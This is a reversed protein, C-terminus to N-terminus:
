GSALCRLRELADAEKGCDLLVVDAHSAEIQRVPTTWPLLALLHVGPVSGVRAVVEGCVEARDSIALVAVSDAERPM